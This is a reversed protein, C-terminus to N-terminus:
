QKLLNISNSNAYNKGMCRASFFASFFHKYLTDIERLESSNTLIPSDQMLTIKQRDLHFKSKTLRIKEEILSLSLNALQDLITISNARNRKLPIWIKGKFSTHWDYFKKDSKSFIM